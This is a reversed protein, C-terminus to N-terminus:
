RRTSGSSMCTSAQARHTPTESVPEGHQAAMVQARLARLKPLLTQKFPRYQELAGSVDGHGIGAQEKLLREWASGYWDQFFSRHQRLEEYHHLRALM